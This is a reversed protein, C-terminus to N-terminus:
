AMTGSTATRASTCAPASSGLCITRTTPRSTATNPQGSMTAESPTSSRGHAADQGCPHPPQQEGHRECSTPRSVDVREGSRWRAAADRIHQAAAHARAQLLIGIMAAAALACATAILHARERAARVGACRREGRAPPRADMEARVGVVTTAAAIGAEAAANADRALAAARCTLHRATACAHARQRTRGVAAGATVAAARPLDALAAVARVRTARPVRRAIASTEIQRAIRQMAAAAARDARVVGAAAGPCARALDSVAAALSTAHIQRAIGVIAAGAPM